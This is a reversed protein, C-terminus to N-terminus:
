VILRQLLREPLLLSALGDLAIPRSGDLCERKFPVSSIRGQPRLDFLCFFAGDFVSSLEDGQDLDPSKSRRDSARLYLASM